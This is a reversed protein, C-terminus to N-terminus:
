RKLIREQITSHMCEQLKQYSRWYEKAYAGISPNCWTSPRAYGKSGVGQLKCGKPSQHAPIGRFMEAVAKGFTSLSIYATDETEGAITGFIPFRQETNLTIHYIACGKYNWLRERHHREKDLVYRWGIGTYELQAM